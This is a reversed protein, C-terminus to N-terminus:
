FSNLVTTDSKEIIERPTPWLNQLSKMTQEKNTLGEVFGVILILSSLVLGTILKSKLLHQIAITMIVSLLLAIAFLGVNWNASFQSHSSIILLDIIYLFLCSFLIITASKKFYPPLEPLKKGDNVFKDLHCEQFIKVVDDTTEAEIHMDNIDLRSSM